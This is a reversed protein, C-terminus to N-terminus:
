QYIRGNIENHMGREIGDEELFVKLKKKANHLIAKIQSISKKMVIATEEYSLGKYEVFYIALQYDKKLKKIARRVALNEESRFVNEEVDHIDRLMSEMDDDIFMYKKRAKIYNLARSKAITYLYTRFSYKFDYVDKHKMLYIFVEQSIDEASHYDNIFKQIFFQLEMRYKEMLENLAEKNGELFEKYLEKDQEM